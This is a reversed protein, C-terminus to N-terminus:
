LLRADGHVLEPAQKQPQTVTAVTADLAPTVVKADFKRPADSGTLATVAQAPTKFGLKAALKALGVQAHAWVGGAPIGQSAPKAQSQDPNSSAPQGPGPCPGPKHANPGHDCKLVTGDIISRLLGPQALLEPRKALQSATHLMFYAAFPDRTTAAKAIVAQMLLAGEDVHIHPM